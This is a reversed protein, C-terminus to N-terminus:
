NILAENEMAEENFLLDDLESFGTTYVQKPTDEDAPFVTASIEKTRTWTQIDGM